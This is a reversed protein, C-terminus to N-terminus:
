AAESLSELKAHFGDIMALLDECAAHITAILEDNREFRHCVNPLRPDPNFSVFDCWQRGTVYLLTQMQLIHGADFNGLFYGMHTHAAPCKIEIAGDDGVLGDPSSGVRGDDRTIFGTQQVSVDNTFEYWARAESELATGREMFSSTADDLPAGILQEALLRHAYPIRSASPAFKPTLLKDMCSGTIVGARAFRWEESGQKVDHIIM